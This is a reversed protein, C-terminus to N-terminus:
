GERAPPLAPQFMGNPIPSTHFWGAEEKMDMIVHLPGFTRLIM